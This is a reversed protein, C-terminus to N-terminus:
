YQRRPRRLSRVLATAVSGGVFGLLLGGGGVAVTVPLSFGTPKASSAAVSTTDVASAASATESPGDTATVSADDSPGAGAVATGSPTAADVATGSIAVHIKVPFNLGAAYGNLHYKVYYTGPDKANSAQPDVIGTDTALTWTDKQHCCANDYAYEDGDVTVSWIEGGGGGSETNKSGDVTFRAKARPGTQLTVAYYLTEGSSLTDVFDGDTLMPAADPQPDGQVPKGTLTVPRAARQTVQNLSSALRATDKVDTYTGGTSSAICTLQAKAKADVKLGVTNVTLNVGSAKLQKAVACPEPPACSDEGDSVLVISGNSGKPLDAAAKQLSLGIPTEGKAAFRDVAKTLASKNLAVVPAILQTDQCSKAKQSSPVRHGYVRLGVLVDPPLQGIITKMAAKAAKMKTSGHGDAENMSGSADLVLVMATSPTTDAAAPGTALTAPVVVSGLLLLAGIM